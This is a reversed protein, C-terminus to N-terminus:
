KTTLGTEIIPEHTFHPPISFTPSVTLGYDDAIKFLVLELEDVRETLMAIKKWVPMGERGGSVELRGVTQGQWTLPISVNWSAEGAESDDDSPNEWSAYYSEHLAPANIDLRMTKLEM